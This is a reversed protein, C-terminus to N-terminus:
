SASSRRSWRHKRQVAAAEVGGLEDPAASVCRNGAVKRARANTDRCGQADREARNDALLDGLVVQEPRVSCTTQVEDGPANTTCPHRAAM